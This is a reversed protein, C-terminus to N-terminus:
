AAKKRLYGQAKRLLALDDEFVGLGRNCKFCLVGRVIGTTHDHDVHAARAKRCVACVGDQRLILWEVEVSDLGYRRRLQFQRGSGHHKERNRRSIENHCPKCYTARKSRNARNRPFDEDPKHRGCAPCRFTEPM